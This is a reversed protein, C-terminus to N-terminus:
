ILSFRGATDIDDSEGSSPRAQVRLMKEKSKWVTCRNHVVKRQQKSVLERSLAVGM